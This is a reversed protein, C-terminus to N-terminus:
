RYERRIGTMIRVIGRKVQVHELGLVAVMSWTSVDICLQVVKSKMEMESGRRRLGRMLNVVQNPRVLGPGVQVQDGL